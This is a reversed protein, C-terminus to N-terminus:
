WQAVDGAGRMLTKLEIETDESRISNAEMTYGGRVGLDWIVTIGERRGWGM